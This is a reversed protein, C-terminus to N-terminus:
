LEPLGISMLKLCHSYVHDVGRRLLLGFVNNM